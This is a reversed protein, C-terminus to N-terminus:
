WEHHNERGRNPSVRPPRCSQEVLVAVLFDVKKKIKLDTERKTEQDQNVFAKTAVELLQSTNMGAFGELKQL